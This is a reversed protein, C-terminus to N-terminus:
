FQIHTIAIRKSQKIFYIYGNDSLRCLKKTEVFTNYMSGAEFCKVTKSAPPLWYGVKNPSSTTLLCHTKSVLLWFSKCIFDPSCIQPLGKQRFNCTKYHNLLTEIEQLKEFNQFM